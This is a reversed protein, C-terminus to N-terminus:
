MFFLHEILIRTGILILIVGGAIEAIGVLKRGLKRGIYLGTLAILFTVIGILLAPYWIKEVFFSFSIGVALADISTALSMTLLVKWHTPNKIKRDKIPIRGERIMRIGLFALLAFAIWHDAAMIQDDFQEGILWGILPMTGQFIALSTAIKLADKVKFHNRCVSLGSCVSVAFSDFSLSIAILLITLFNM